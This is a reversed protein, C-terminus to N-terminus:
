IKHSGSDAAPPASEGEGLMRIREAETQIRLFWYFETPTGGPDERLVLQIAAESYKLNRASDVAKARERYKDVLDSEPREGTLLEHIPVGLAKSLIAATNGNLSAEPKKRLRKRLEGITGTSLRHKKFFDSQSNYAGGSVAEGILRVLRDAINETTM